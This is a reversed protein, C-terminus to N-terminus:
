NHFSPGLIHKSSIENLEADVPLGGHREEEQARWGRLNNEPHPLRSRKFIFQKGIDVNDDGEVRKRSIYM